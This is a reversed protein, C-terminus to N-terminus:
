PPSDVQCLYVMKSVNKEALWKSHCQLLVPLQVWLLCSARNDYFAVHHAINTFEHKTERPIATLFTKFCCFYGELDILSMPLPPMRYAVYSKRNTNQQLYIHRDQVTLSINDIMEWFQLLWTVRSEGKPPFIDHM